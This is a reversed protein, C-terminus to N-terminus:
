SHRVHHTSSDCGDIVGGRAFEFIADEPLIQPVGQLRLSEMLAEIHPSKKGSPLIM